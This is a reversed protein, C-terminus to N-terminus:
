HLQLLDPKICAFLRDADPGYFFLCFEGTGVDHGDFEGVGAVEVQGSLHDGLATLAEREIESGFGSDSLQISVLVAQEM